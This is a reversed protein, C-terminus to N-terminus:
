IDSLYPFFYIFFMSITAAGVVDACREAQLIISLSILCFPIGKSRGISVVKKNDPGLDKSADM